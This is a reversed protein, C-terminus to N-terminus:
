DEEIYDSNIKIYPVYYHTFDHIDTYTDDEFSTENLFSLLIDIAAEALADMDYAVTGALDGSEVYEIATDIGDIGYVPISIGAQYLAERAGLAMGDNNCIIVEIESAFNSNLWGETIQMGDSVSWTTSSDSALENLIVGADTLTSLASNTRLEVFPHGPEGKLIVYDLIGDGDKDWDQNNNWDDLIMEGQARGGKDESADVFWVNEYSTMASERTPEKVIYILPIGAEKAKNTINDAAAPDVLNIILADAGNAIMTDVQNFLLATDFNSDYEDLIIGNEEAYARLAPLYAGFMFNDQYSYLNIGITFATTRNWKAYLTIDDTVKQTFDYETEFTDDSYWGVFTYEEREPTEPISVLGDYDITISDLQELDYLVFSVTFTTIEWKAYLTIEEEVIYDDTYETTLEEDLYWGVFDYGEREPTPTTITGVEGITETDIAVGGNTDYNVFIFTDCGSLSLTILFGFVLLAKKMHLEGMQLINISNLYIM